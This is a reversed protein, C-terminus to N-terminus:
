AKVINKKVKKIEKKVKKVKDDKTKKMEAILAKSAKKINKKFTAKGLSEQLDSFTAEMRDSVQQHMTKKFTKKAKSM